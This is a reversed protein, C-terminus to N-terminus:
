SMGAILFTDSKLHMDYEQGKDKSFKRMIETTLEIKRTITAKRFTHIVNKLHSRIEVLYGGLFDALRLVWLCKM